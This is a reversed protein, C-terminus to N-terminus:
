GQLGPITVGAQALANFVLPDRGYTDVRYEIEGLDNMFVTHYVLHVPVHVDLNVQTERGTNLISTFYGEPDIQQPALLIYALELPRHVRVCGHSFARVDRNFLSRSPTDHLYINHRNPFLFKVRGLANGSGPRQRLVFPFNNTTYQTLDVLRPDITQGSGRIQMEINQRALITPDRLLDPLYEESAISEPVNWSPNIILHEMEDSFEITQYKGAAKGVVVRTELTVLGSDMVYGMFSAQNVFIHRTGLDFNMWRRREMNVLVQQLHQTPDANVADLTRPGVIGDADLNNLAQFAKVADALADDYVPSDGAADPFGMVAMRMRLALVRADTQGPRLSRGPGVHPLTEGEEVLAILRQAEAKLAQYEPSQPELGAYFGATTGQNAVGDMLAAVDVSPRRRDIHTSVSSPNLLGTSVDTAYTLFVGSAAAEFAALGDDTFASAQLARLGNIDYRSAPLGNSAVNGLAALFADMAITNTWIPAFDRAQYWAMLAPNELAALATRLAVAAPAPQEIRVGSQAFVAPPCLITSAALIAAGFRASNGLYLM